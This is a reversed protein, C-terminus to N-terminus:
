KRGKRNKVNSLVTWGNEKMEDIFDELESDPRVPYKEDDDNDAYIVVGGGDKFTVDGVKVHDGPIDIFSGTFPVADLSAKRGFRVLRTETTAYYWIEVDIM